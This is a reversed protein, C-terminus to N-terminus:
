LRAQLEVEPYLPDLEVEVEEFEVWEPVAEAEPVPLAEAVPAAPPDPDPDPDPAPPWPSPSAEPVVPLPGAEVLM